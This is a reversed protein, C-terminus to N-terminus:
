ITQSLLKLDNRASTFLHFCRGLSHFLNEEGICVFKLVFEMAKWELHGLRVDVVGYRDRRHITWEPDGFFASFFPCRARLIVSHTYVVRDGLHLAVDPALADVRTDRRLVLSCDSQAQDFLQQCDGPLTSVPMRKVVSGLALSLERIELVRALITLESKVQVPFIGLHEFQESFVSGIRRDWPTLLNDSYLYHLLILFPLPSVGAVLLYGLIPTPSAQFSILLGSHTDELTANDTLVAQLPKCRSALILRHAPVEVGTGVRIAIDAGHPARIPMAKGSSENRLQADLVNLLNALTEIDNLIMADEVDDETLSVQAPSISSRLKEKVDDCTYPAIAAMDTGLTTGVVHVPPPEYDIRLAGFAGTSNTCVGVVRQIHPVRQFRFSKNGGIAANGKSKRSRVYVHGSQTCVILTGDGGIDVDQNRSPEAPISNAEIALHGYGFLTM